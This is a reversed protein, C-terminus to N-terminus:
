HINSRGQDRKQLKESVAKVQEPGLGHRVGIEDCVDKDTPYGRERIEDILGADKILKDVFNPDLREQHLTILEQDEGRMMRKEPNEGFM